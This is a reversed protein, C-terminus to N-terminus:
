QGHHQDIARDIAFKGSMELRFEAKVEDAIDICYLLKSRQKARRHETTQSFYTELEHFTPVYGANTNTPQANIDVAGQRIKTHHGERYVRLVRCIKFLLPPCGFSQLDQSFNFLQPHPNHKVEGSLQVVLNEFWLISPCPAPYSYICILTKRLSLMPSNMRSSFPRDYGAVLPKIYSMAGLSRDLM